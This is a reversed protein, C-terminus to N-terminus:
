GHSGRWVGRDQMVTRLLDPRDTIIGNVGLDLLRHMDQPENVTWVHVQAGARSLAAVTRENVVRLPGYREPVQLAAAPRPTKGVLSPAWRVLTALPGTSTVVRGGTLGRFRRLRRDNFSGVIVRDWAGLAAILRALPLETGSTKLDVVLRAEPFTNLVEELSPITIGAGRFPHGEGPGHRYGADIDALDSFRRLSIDGHANTTRDLTDDHLCVVAGDGTVHVDTELWDFGLDIAGQFARMSNEPWLIRSGRHAIALPGESDLVQHRVHDAMRYEGILVPDPEAM